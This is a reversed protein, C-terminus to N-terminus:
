VSRVKVRMTEGGKYSVDVFKFVQLQIINVVSVPEVIRPYGILAFNWVGSGCFADAYSFGSIAVVTFNDVACRITEGATYFNFPQYGADCQFM